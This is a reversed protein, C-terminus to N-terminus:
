ESNCHEGKAIMARADPVLVGTGLIGKPLPELGTPPLAGAYLDILPLMRDGRAAVECVLDDGSNDQNRVFLLYAVASDGLPTETKLVNAFLIAAIPSHPSPSRFNGSSDFEDARTSILETLYPRLLAARTTPVKHERCASLLVSMAILPLVRTM